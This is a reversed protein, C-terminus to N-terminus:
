IDSNLPNRYVDQDFADVAVAKAAAQEAKVITNAETITIIKERLADDAQYPKKILIGSRTAFRIKKYAPEAAIALVLAAELRGVKENSDGSTYSYKILRDRTKNNDLVLLAVENALTDTAPKKWAGLPFIIFYLLPRLLRHPFNQLISKLATEIRYLGNEMSLKIIPYDATPYGDDKYRKLVSSLIYLESLIDSMRGGLLQQKKLSDGMLFITADTIVSFSVSYRWLQKYWHKESLQAARPPTGFYGLTLSHFLSRVCNSLFLSVHNSIVADFSQLGARKDENECSEIEQRLYPHSQLTGQAFTIVSRTVINAGEVAVGIPVANYASLLYNSPGDCIARGAHIDFAHNTAQRAYETIQYKMIGSVALPRKGSDVLAAAVSRAAESNYTLETLSAISAKVGEFTKLSLGFQRRVVAYATTTKFATKITGVSISPLSLCRGVFLCEVIMKWGFGIGLEAGIVWELPIFVDKGVIPGHPFALGAPYHRQTTDVGPHNAPILALTIGCKQENGLLKEPDGLSFALVILSAQPAFSIYRKKFNLKIGLVEKGEYNGYTVIGEDLMNGVDSGQIGTVAFSVIEEGKALRPLYKEKQNQTGYIDILEDPYLSTPLEILISADVSHSAVKSLILSQAQFSFNFGGWKETVRLGSFSHKKAFDWVKKPIRRNHRIDWDDVLACFNDIPGEIFALEKETLNTQPLKHLAEWNPRGIFYGAEFGAEGASLAQKELQSIRVNSQKLFKYIHKTFLIQRTTPFVFTAILAAGLFAVGSIAYSIIGDAIELWILGTSFLFIVFLLAPLRYRIFLFFALFSVILLLYEFSFM